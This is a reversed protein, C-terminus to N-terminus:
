NASSDTARTVTITRERPTLDPHALFRFLGLRYQTTVLVVGHRALSEGDFIPDSAAGAFNGGGHFWVMVARRPKAPWEPTWINM